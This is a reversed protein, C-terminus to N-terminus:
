NFATKFKKIDGKGFMNKAKAFLGKARTFKTREDIVNESELLDTIDELYKHYSRNFTFNMDDKTTILIDLNTPTLTCNKFDIVEYKNSFLLREKILKFEGGDKELRLIEGQKFKNTKGKTLLLVSFKNEKNYLIKSKGKFINFIPYQFIYTVKNGFRKARRFMFIGILFFFLAIIFSTMPSYISIFVMITTMTIKGIVLVSDLIPIPSLFVLFDIFQRLAIVVILYYTTFIVVFLTKLTISLFGAEIVVRDAGEPNNIFVPLLVIIGNIVLVANDELYEDAMKIVSLSKSLGLSPRVILTFLFFFGFLTVVLWNNYFPHTKVYDNSYGFKSSISTLFVSTYPNIGLSTMQALQEVITSNYAVVEEPSITEEEQSNAHFSILFILLFIKKM